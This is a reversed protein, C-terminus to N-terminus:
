YLDDTQLRQGSLIATFSRAWFDIQEVITQFDAEDSFPTSSSTITITKEDNIAVVTEDTQSDKVISSFKIVVDEQTGKLLKEMILGRDSSPIVASLSFEAVLSKRSKDIEQDNNINMFPKLKSSLKHYLASVINELVEEDVGEMVYAEDEDDYVEVLFKRLDIKYLYIDNYDGADSVDDAWKYELAAFSAPCMILVSIMIISCIINKFKNNMIGIIYMWILNIVIVFKDSKPISPERKLTLM